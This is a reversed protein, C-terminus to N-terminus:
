DGPLNIRVGFASGGAMENQSLNRRRAPRGSSYSEIIQNNGAYLAIHDVGNRSGYWAVFDGPRLNSINSKTGIMSLDKATGRYNLLDVGLSHYVQEVLGSCDVGSTLSNGGWVYGVGSDAYAQARTIAQMRLTGTQSTFQSAPIIPPAPQLYQRYAGSNYVSWDRYTGGAGRWIAYAAKASQLPDFPNTPYWSNGQHISNIQFLGRDVSGNRNSNNVAAPNWGSEAKAIAVMTAISEEPFGAQRLVNAVGQAGGSGWGAGGGGQAYQGSGYQGQVAGLGSVAGQAAQLSANMQKQWTALAAADRRAKQVQASQIAAQTATAGMQQIKPIQDTFTSLDISDAIPSILLNQRNTDQRQRNAIDQSQWPLQSGAGAQNHQSTAYQGQFQLGSQEPTLFDRQVEGFTSPPRYPNTSAKKKKQEADQQDPLLFPMTM